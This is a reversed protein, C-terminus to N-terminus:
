GTPRQKQAAIANRQAATLWKVLPKLCEPASAEDFEISHKQEGTDVTITYQFRDAGSQVTNLVAPQEFFCSENVLRTLEATEEAPLSASDFDSGLSLGAYGGSREFHVHM